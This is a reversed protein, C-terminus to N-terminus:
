HTLNFKDKIRKLEELIVPNNPEQELALKLNLFAAKIDGQALSELGFLYFRRATPLKIESEPEKKRFELEEPELRLKGKSLGQDYRARKIPTSLVRYAETIRKYIASANELLEKDQVHYYRDPHFLGAMKHFADKLRKLNVNKPVGLLTYYDTRDLSRRLNAITKRYDRPKM